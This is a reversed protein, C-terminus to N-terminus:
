TRLKRTNIGMIRSVRMHMDMGYKVYEESIVAEKSRRRRIPTGTGTIKKAKHGM